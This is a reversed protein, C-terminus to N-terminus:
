AIWCTATGAGAAVFVRTKTSAKEKYQDHLTEILGHVESCKPM